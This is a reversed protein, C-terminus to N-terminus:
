SHKEETRTSPVLQYGTIMSRFNNWGARAVQAVHIVFFVVYGITLWFHLFRAFEYGGLLTTLLHLQTPKYIAVGTVLSGAGALIIATYAIKQAGNYKKAPPCYKSLHLDHLTVQVAEVLSYRDPVLDRWEGSILTYVVYILGNIAFLWMFFFHWGMGEALMFPLHLKAYFWDPFFRLLTWSGVGIRYVEHAHAGDPDSDAWYIMLGSWIMIGLLPFNIWHMWRSALDHKKRLVPFQDKYEPPIDATDASGDSVVPPQEVASQLAPGSQRDFVEETAQPDADKSNVPIDKEM